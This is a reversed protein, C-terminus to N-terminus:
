SMPNQPPPMPATRGITSCRERAYGAGVLADGLENTPAILAQADQCRAAVRSGWTATRQWAVDDEGALLVTTRMTRRVAGLAVYAEHKLGDVIVADGEGAMNRLWTGLSYMWRLTSWGGRAAGRLRLLRVRGIVM